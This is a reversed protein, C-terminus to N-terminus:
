QQAVTSNFTGNINNGAVVNGGHSIIKGGAGKALGQNNGSVTSNRLRVTVNAGNVSVGNTGNNASTSGEITVNTTGGSNDIAFLGVGTSGAITSNRVTVTNSGTTSRGDITIGSANDDIAVNDLVVKASGSGVPKILIGAGGTAGNERAVTSDTVYLESAASPQYIIGYRNAVGIFTSDEVHVIGGAGGIALGHEANLIFGRIRVVDGSGVDIGIGASGTINTIPGAVSNVVSAQGGDVIIDVSQNLVV